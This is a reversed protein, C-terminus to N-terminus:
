DARGWMSVAIDRDFKVGTKIDLCQNEMEFGVYKM